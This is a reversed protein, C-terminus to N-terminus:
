DTSGKVVARQLSAETRSNHLGFNGQPRWEKLSQNYAYYDGSLDELFVHFLPDFAKLKQEEGNLVRQIDKLPGGRENGNIVHTLLGQTACYYALQGMGAQMALVPKNAAKCMKFLLTLDQAKRLWPLVRNDVDIIVMDLIDFRKLHEDNLYMEHYEHPTIKQHELNSLNTDRDFNYLYGTLDTYHRYTIIDGVESPM